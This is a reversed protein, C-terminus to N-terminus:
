NQQWCDVSIRYLCHRKVYDPYASLNPHDFDQQLDAMGLTEMVKQSPINEKTTFAYVYSVGLQNFAYELTSKAAESAYGKRWHKSALRWGIEVFPTNPIPVHEDQQHLGVFGIFAGTEKLEVAWFGWGKELILGQIKSAIADSEERSLTKPFYRMVQPDATMKAFEPFDSAKWSRLLLRETEIAVTQDMM